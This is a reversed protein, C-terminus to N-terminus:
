QLQFGTASIRMREVASATKLECHATPEPVPAHNKARVNENIIKQRDREEAIVREIAGALTPSIEPEDQGAIREVAPGLRAEHREHERGGEDVPQHAQDDGVVGPFEPADPVFRYFLQRMSPRTRSSLPACDEDRDEQIEGREAKEFVEVEPDLTVIAEDLREAKLVGLEVREKADDQREANAEIGELGQAVRDVDVAAFGLRHRIEDIEGAENRHEGV